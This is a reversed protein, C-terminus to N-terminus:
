REARRSERGLRQALEILLGTTPKRAQLADLIGSGPNCGEAATEVIRQKTVLRFLEDLPDQGPTPALWRAAGQLRGVRAMRVDDPFGEGPNGSLTPVSRRPERM